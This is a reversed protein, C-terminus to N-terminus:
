INVRALDQTNAFGPRLQINLVPTVWGMAHLRALLQDKKWQKPRIVLRDATQALDGCIDYRMQLTRQTRVHTWSDPTKDLGRGAM